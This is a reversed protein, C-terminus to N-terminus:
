RTVRPTVEVQGELVRTIVGASSIIEIDYVYRGPKIGTTIESNLSITLEGLSPNPIEVTFDYATNSTYTKRMQGRGTYNELNVINSTTDEVTITSRFDSGQDIILNAYVAM